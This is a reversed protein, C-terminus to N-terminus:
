AKSQRLVLVIQVTGPRREKRSDLFQKVEKSPSRPRAVHSALVLALREPAKVVPPRSPDPRPPGQGELVRIVNDATGDSVPKRPDIGPKSSQLVKADVGLLSSLEKYDDPGLPNVMIRDFQGDRQAEAKKDARGIEQLITALEAATVDEMYLVYNTKLRKTLCTQADKDILFKIGHAGFAAQLRPLAKANELCFL